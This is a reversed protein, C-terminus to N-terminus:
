ETKRLGEADDHNEERKNWIDAAMKASPYLTMKNINAPCLSTWCGVIYWGSGALSEPVRMLTAESGCFPCSKLEPESM